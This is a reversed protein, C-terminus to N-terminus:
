KFNQWYKETKEIKQSINSKKKGPFERKMAGHYTLDLNQIDIAPRKERNKEMAMLRDMRMKTLYNKTSQLVGDTIPESKPTIFKQLMMMQKLAEVESAEMKVQGQAEAGEEEEEQGEDIILRGEDDDGSIYNSDRSNIRVKKPQPGLPSASDGRECGSSGPSPAQNRDDNFLDILFGVEVNRKRKSSTNLTPYLPRQKAEELYERFGCKRPRYGTTSTGLKKFNQDLNKALIVEVDGEIEERPIESDLSYTPTSTNSTSPTPFIKQAETGQPEQILVMPEAPNGSSLDLPQNNEQEYASSEVEVRESKIQVLNSRSGEGIQNYGNNYINQYYLGLQLNNM